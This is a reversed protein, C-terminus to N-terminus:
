GAFSYKVPGIIEKTKTNVTFDIILGSETSNDPKIYSGTSSKFKMDENLVILQCTVKVSKGLTCKNTITSLAGNGKKDFQSLMITAMIKSVKIGVTDEEYGGNATATPNVELLIGLAQEEVSSYDDAFSTLATLTVFITLLVKKM